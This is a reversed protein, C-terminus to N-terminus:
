SSVVCVGVSLVKYKSPKPNSDRIKNMKEHKNKIGQYKYNLRDSVHKVSGEHMSYAVKRFLFREYIRFLESSSTYRKANSPKQVKDM